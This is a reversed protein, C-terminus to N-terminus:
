KFAKFHRTKTMKTIIKGPFEALRILFALPLSPLALPDLRWILSFHHAVNIWGSLSPRLLEMVWLYMIHTRFRLREKRTLDTKPIQTLLLKFYEDYTIRGKLTSRVTSAHQRFRNLPEAVYCFDFNDAIRFFLDWDSCVRYNKSFNGSVKFCNRRILAASLNPIVCSYLLFRQMEGREIFADKVCKLQFARERIEYDNGLVQDNEDVMWSKCFAIGITPSASIAEVLREIVTPSCDDDCNAFLIYEGRAMEIGQNSVAVWGGNKERRILTVRPNSAYRELIEVSNDPSCDDIVLIEINPYTQAVLSDMRQTLYGAHNYSAVVISVLGPAEIKSM